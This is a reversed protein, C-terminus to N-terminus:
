LLFVVEHRYRALPGCIERWCIFVLRACMDRLARGCVTEDLAMCIM